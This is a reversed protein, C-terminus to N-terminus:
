LKAPNHRVPLLSQLMFIQLIWNKLHLFHPKKCRFFQVKLNLIFLLGPTARVQNAIQRHSSRLAVAM